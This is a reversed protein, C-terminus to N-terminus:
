TIRTIMSWISLMLVAILCTAMFFNINKQTRDPLELRNIKVGAYLWLLHLLIWIFNAILLKLATEIVLSEPYFAFGSFLTTNVAYVADPDDASVSVLVLPLEHSKAFPAEVVLTVYESLITLEPM